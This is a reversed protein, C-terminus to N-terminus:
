LLQPAPPAKEGKFHLEECQSIVQQTKPEIKLHSVECAAAGELGM